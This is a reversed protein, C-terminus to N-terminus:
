AKKMDSTVTTVPPTTTTTYHRYAHHYQHHNCPSPSQPSKIPVLLWCTTTALHRITIIITIRKGTDYTQLGYAEVYFLHICKQVGEVSELELVVYTVYVGEAGEGCDVRVASENSDTLTLVGCLVRESPAELYIKTGSLRFYNYAGTHTPHVTVWRVTSRKRLELKLWLTIGGTTHCDTHVLTDESGDIPSMPNYPTNFSSSISSTIFPLNYPDQSDAALVFSSLIALLMMKNLM